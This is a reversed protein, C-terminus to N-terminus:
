YIKSSVTILLVTIIVNSCFNPLVKIPLDKNEFTEFALDYFSAKQEM